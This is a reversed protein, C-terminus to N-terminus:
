APLKIELVAGGRAHNSASISGGHAEVLAKAIPLGQGSGGSDADRSTRSEEARYFRELVCDLAAEALGPGHDRVRM